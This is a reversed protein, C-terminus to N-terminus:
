GHENEPRGRATRPALGQAAEVCLALSMLLDDHGDAPDVFWALRRQPRYQVRCVALEHWLARCEASDDPRYLRVRGSGVAALLGYGLASKREETLRVRVVEPGGRLRALVSAIGEGLGTADVVLRRLPWVERCLRALSAALDAHPAGQWVAHDLVEIVPDPVLASSEAPRVRAITLVTADPGGTRAPGALAEGGVDLGGVYGLIPYPEPHPPASARPHDGRLLERQAPSLLRGGGPLPRLAYQTRFLPHDEGLRAREGEVFAAYAPNHRAVTQWDVEFHRRVGDRREQELHEARVQALLDTETWATGYFVITAGTAAAMPRFDRTFKDADVDQAEDCELLLHVTHGVVGATPAASLFFQRARGLRVCNGGELRALPTAGLARVRAWLRRLSVLGQPRFTPACKIGDADKLASGLLLILELQASLENKGGQRSIMVSFSRGHGGRVSEWVARMVQAQYPRPRPLAESRRGQDSARAARDRAPAATARAGHTVPRM